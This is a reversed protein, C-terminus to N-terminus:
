STSYINRKIALATTNECSQIKKSNTFNGWLIIENSSHQLFITKYFNYRGAENKQKTETKSQKSQIVTIKCKLIFLIM